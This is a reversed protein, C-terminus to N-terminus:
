LLIITPTVYQPEPKPLNNLYNKISFEAQWDAPNPVVAVATLIFNKVYYSGDELFEVGDYGGKIFGETSLGTIDGALINPIISDTCDKVTKNIHATMFLGDEKKEISDIGGIILDSHNYNLSPKLKGEDYLEFFANFSNADVVEMNLNPINWHTCMGSIQLFNDGDVANEIRFNNYIKLNDKM